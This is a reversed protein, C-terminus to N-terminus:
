LRSLLEKKKQSFEEDSLFGRHHIDALKEIMAIIELGKPSTGDNSTMAAAASAPANSSDNSTANSPTTSQLNSDIRTSTQPIAAPSMPETAKPVAVGDRTVVPLALLNVTGFQSSFTISGGTGQQQSFGGIQHDQTDYIWVSKGTQVALRRAGSFYAYKIQNQSGLASPTGLEQPWWNQEPDPVFLSSQGHIGGTAQHQNGSGSQTQSQFSGVSQFGIQGLTNSIENCLSDIRGKLYNNFMDGIMIMGGRMWQGSGGLEPHSFQAMQGNGNLVAVVMHQTADVSFSHRQALDSVIRKGETTLEQM